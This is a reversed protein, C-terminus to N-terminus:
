TIISFHSKRLSLCWLSAEKKYFLQEKLKLGLYYENVPKWDYNIPDSETLAKVYDENGLYIGKDVTEIKLWERQEPLSVAAMIRRWREDHKKFEANSALAFFKYM